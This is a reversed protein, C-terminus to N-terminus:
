AVAPYLPQNPELTVAHSSPNIWHFNEIIEDPISGPVKQRLWEVWHALAPGGRESIKNEQACM